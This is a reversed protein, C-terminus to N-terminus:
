LVVYTFTFFMARNSLDVAIWEMQCRDNTTDGLIAAVQGAVAPSAATGACEQNNAFNSAIPLSIGLQTAVAATPDVDVKGSVTVVNGVRMWQSAYATSAAVNAVGTLTPTYTGSAIYQNTTGTVAGANNHLAKGWLRGDGALRLKEAATRDSTGTSGAATPSLVIDGSGTGTATGSELILNGANKDTAGSTAGGSKVTLDNGATNSTTRREMAATYAAEGRFSLDFTPVPVRLGVKGSAVTTGTGDLGSGFILNGLTMQNSGTNSPLEVDHGIAVNNSGSTLASGTLSGILVNNTGTTVGFGATLGIAVNNSAAGLTQLTNSGIGINGNGTTNFLSFTGLATNQDGATGANMAGAGIALNGTGSVNNQLNGNGIAFNSTTGSATNALLANNGIAFSSAGTTSAGLANLGIAFNNGGSTLADGAATGILVNGTGSMTLNGAGGIFISNTTFGTRFNGDAQINGTLSLTNGSSDYTMGADDALRTGDFFIVRTSTFSTANTGGNAIPIPSTLTISGVAASVACTLAGGVCNLARIRGQSVGEEQLLLPPYWVGGIDQAAAPTVATLALLLAALLRRIM